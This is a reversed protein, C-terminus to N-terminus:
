PCSSINTESAERRVGCVPLFRHAVIQLANTVNTLFLRSELWNPEDILARIGAETLDQSM